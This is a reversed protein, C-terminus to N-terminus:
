KSLSETLAYTLDITVTLPVETGLRVTRGSLEMQYRGRVPWGNRRSVEAEGRLSGSVRLDSEMLQGNINTKQHMGAEVSGEVTLRYFLREAEVLQWRGPGTLPLTGNSLALNVTWPEGIRMSRGPYQPLIGCVVQALNKATTQDTPALVSALMELFATPDTDNIGSLRSPTTSGKPKSFVYSLSPDPGAPLMTLDFGSGVLSRYRRYLHAASKKQDATDFALDEFPTAVTGSVAALEARVKWSAETSAPKVIGSVALTERREVPCGAVDQRYTTAIEIRLQRTEETPRYRPNGSKYVWAHGLVCVAVLLVATLRFTRRKLSM